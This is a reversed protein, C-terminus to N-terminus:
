SRLEHLKEQMATLDSQRSTSPAVKNQHEIGSLDSATEPAAGIQGATLEWLIKNVEEQAEEDIDEQYDLMEFSEEVMEELIGAEMMEKSMEVMTQFIEPIKLLNQVNEMVETSKELSGVVRLIALQHSLTAIFSSIQIKTSDIRKITKRGRLVEKAIIKCVDADGKKAADKLQLRTKGEARQISKIQRELHNSEKKLTSLWHKVQKKPDKKTKGFLGM